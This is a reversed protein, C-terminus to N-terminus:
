LHLLCHWFLLDMRYRIEQEYADASSVSSYDPLVVVDLGHRHAAGQSRNSIQEHRHLPPIKPRDSSTGRLQLPISGSHMLLRYWFCFCARIISYYGAHGLPDSELSQLHFSYHSPLPLSYFNQCLVGWRLLRAPWSTPEVYMKPKAHTATFLFRNGSVYWKFQRLKNTLVSGYTDVM